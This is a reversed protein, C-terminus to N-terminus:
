LRGMIGGLLMLDRLYRRCVPKGQRNRTQIYGGVLKKYVHM